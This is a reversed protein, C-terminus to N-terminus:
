TKSTNEGRHARAARELAFKQEVYDRHPLEGAKWREELDQLAPNVQTSPQPVSPQHSHQMIDYFTDDSELPNQPAHTDM